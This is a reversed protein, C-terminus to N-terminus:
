GRREETWLYRSRQFLPFAELSGLVRALRLSVPGHTTPRAELYEQAARRVRVRGSPEALSVLLLEELARATAAAELGLARRALAIDPEDLLALTLYLGRADASLAALRAELAAELPESRLYAEVLAPLGHTREWADQGLVEKSIAELDLRADVLFPPLERSAIIVSAHPRLERLRSLVKQSQEDMREWNDFLWRGELRLLHQLVSAEGEQLSAGVLPELTAYPLGSRGVLYTGPLSRLLATKGMGAGGRLWVWDGLALQTLRATERERGVLVRQLLGRAENSSRSLDLDFVSAEDRIQAVLPSEGAQLILHLRTLEEPEYEPAGDLTHAAEATRTATAFHGQAADREAVKLMGRRVRGALDERTAYVWEELEVGWDSLRLDRLFPGHYLALASDLDGSELTILLHQVDTEIRTWVRVEDAGVAGDVGRRLRTLAASLSNMPDSARTWFLEALHRREKPGELALYTLLLLPKVRQFASNELSLGGLTLLRM